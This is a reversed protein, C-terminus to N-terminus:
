KINPVVHNLVFSNMMAVDLTPNYLYFCPGGGCLKEVVKADPYPLEVDDCVDLVWGQGKWRGRIDKEDKTVGCRQAYAAAYKQVSHSGLLMSAAEEEEVACKFQEGKFM